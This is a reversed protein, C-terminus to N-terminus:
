IVGFPQMDIGQLSSEQKGDAENARTAPIREGPVAISGYSRWLGAARWSPVQSARFVCSSRTGPAGPLRFPGGGHGIGDFPRDAQFAGVVDAVEAPEAGGVAVHDPGAAEIAGVGEGGQGVAVQLDEGAPPQRGDDVEACIPLA